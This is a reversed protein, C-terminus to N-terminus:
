LANTTLDYIPALVTEWDLDAAYQRAKASCEKYRAQDTLLRIAASAISEPSNDVLAGAQSITIIEQAEGIKSSIVPLGAAMYERIKLHCAYENFRRSQFIAVGVDARRFYNWLESNPQKGSFEVIESLGMAAALNTLQVMHEGSGVIVLRIDPIEARINPLAKVVLDVHWGEALLGVYILTPPHPEKKSVKPFNGLDVGNPVFIVRRAGQGERLHALARSVSIVGDAKTVALHEKWVLALTSAPGKADPGDPFFDCDDYFVKGIVKFRKLLSVLFANHPHSYICLDYPDNALWGALNLFAWLDGVLNQAFQPLKLRRVVIHKVNGEQWIHRRDTLLNHLSRYTKRLLSAPPGGYTNTYSVFDVEDYRSSFFRVLHFFRHNPEIGQDVDGIMLIRKPSISSPM